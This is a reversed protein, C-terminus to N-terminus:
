DFHSETEPYFNLNTVCCIFGDHHTTRKSLLFAWEDHAKGNNM